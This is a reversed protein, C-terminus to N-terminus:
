WSSFVWRPPEVDMGQSTRRWQMDGTGDPDVLYYPSGVKPTVKVMYLNGNVRYEQMTRNNHDNMTISPVSGPLSLDLDEVRLDKAHATFIGLAMASIVLRKILMM